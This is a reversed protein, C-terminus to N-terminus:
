FAGFASDRRVLNRQTVDFPTSDRWIPDFQALAGFRPVLDRHIVDRPASDRRIAGFRTL